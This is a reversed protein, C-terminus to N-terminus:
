YFFFFQKKDLQFNQIFNLFFFYIVKPKNNNLRKWINIHKM